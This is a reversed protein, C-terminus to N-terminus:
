ISNYVYVNYSSNYAYGTEYTWTVQTSIPSGKLVVNFVNQTACRINLRKYGIQTQQRSRHLSMFIFSSDEKFYQNAYFYINSSLNWCNNFMDTGNFICANPMYVRLNGNFKQCNDFMHYANIIVPGGADAYRTLYNANIIVDKNFNKCNQFMQAFSTNLSATMFNPCSSNFEVCGNFMGEFNSSAIGRTTNYNNLAFYKNCGSFMFSCDTFNYTVSKYFEANGTFNICYTFMGRANQIKYPINISQYMNTCFEFMNACINLNSDFSINIKSRLNICNNFMGYANVIGNVGEGYADYTNINVTQNFAYCGNFMYALNRAKSYINKIPKNFYSCSAFMYSYDSIDGQFNISPNFNSSAWFMQRGDVINKGIQVNTIGSFDDISGGVPYGGLRSRNANILVDKTGDNYYVCNNWDISSGTPVRIDVHSFGYNSGSPYYNGNATIVIDELAPLPVNVRIQNFGNFGYTNANYLGNSTFERFGYTPQAPTTVIVKKMAVNTGDPNITTTGYSVSLSKQDQLPPHTVTAVVKAMADYGSDPNITASDSLTVSKSTQINASPASPVQVNVKSFGDLSNASALYEGNATIVSREGIVKEPVQVNVKNFGDVGSSPTYIGNSTVSLEQVSPSVLVNVKNFGDVGTPPTFIGNSTVSLEQVSAPVSVFIDNYGDLGSGVPPNYQGNSSIQLSTVNAPVNVNVNFFGDYGPDPIYNGNTSINIDQLNPTAHVNVNVSTFGNYGFNNAFFEGNENIDTSGFIFEGEQINLNVTVRNFGDIGFDNANYTGNATFEHEGFSYDNSPVNVTVKNFGDYGYSSAFYEGNQIFEREGSNYEKEPVNVNIEFFGDYGEPPIYSGNSTFTTDLLNIEGSGGGGSEVEVRVSNYGDFFDDNANYLGNERITKEGFTGSVSQPISMIADPMQPPSYDLSSRLKFKIANEIAKIIESSILGNTVKKINDDLTLNSGSTINKIVEYTDKSKEVYIYCKFPPNYSYDKTAIFNQEISVDPYM